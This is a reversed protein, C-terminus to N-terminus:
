IAHVKEKKLCFSRVIPYELRFNTHNSKPIEVYIFLLLFVGM